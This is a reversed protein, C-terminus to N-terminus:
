GVLEVALALPAIRLWLLASLELIEHGVAMLERACELCGREAAHGRSRRVHVGALDCSELAHEIVVVARRGSGGPVGFEPRQLQRLALQTLELGKQLCKIRLRDFGVRCTQELSVAAGHLRSGAGVRM